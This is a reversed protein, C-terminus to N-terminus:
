PEIKDSVWQRTSDSAEKLEGYAKRLDAKVDNWTSETANEAKELRDKAQAWKERLANLKIKADAKTAANARDIKASLRDFEHQTEALDKKMKDVFEAKQAYNYDKMAQVAEKTEMKAKELQVATPNAEKSTCGMVLAAVFFSIIILIAQRMIKGKTSTVDQMSRTAEQKLDRNM